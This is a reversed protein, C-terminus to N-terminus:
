RKLPGYVKMANEAALLAAGLTQFETTTDYEFAGTRGIGVRYGDFFRASRDWLHVVHAGIYPSGPKTAQTVERERKM